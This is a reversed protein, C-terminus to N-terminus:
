PTLGRCEVIPSLEHAFLQVIKDAIDPDHSPDHVVPLSRCLTYLNATDSIPTSLWSTADGWGQEDLLTSGAGALQWALPPFYVSADSLLRLQGGTPTPGLVQTMHVAGTLRGTQGGALAVRLAVDPPLALPKAGDLLGQALTPYRGRLGRNVGFMGMLVSRVVASPGFHVSPVTIRGGPVAVGGTAWCPRLASALEGYAADWRGANSNCQACLGFVYLGGQYQKRSAIIRPLGETDASQLYSRQVGHNNGACQPPLHTRTLPGYAGCLGCDAPEGHRLRLGIDKPARTDDQRDKRRSV